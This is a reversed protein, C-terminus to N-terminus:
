QRSRVGQKSKDSVSKPDFVPARKEVFARIREQPDAMTGTSAMLETAYAYAQKEDLDLQAYFAEKGVAKMVRSGRTARALLDRTTQDLQEAPVIRNIMGWESAREASVPDGTTLMELARKRGIARSLAVMPTFCFWGGGGGPTR